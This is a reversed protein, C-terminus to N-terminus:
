IIPIEREEIIAELVLETTVEPCFYPNSYYQALIYEKKGRVSIVRVGTLLKAKRKPLLDRLNM